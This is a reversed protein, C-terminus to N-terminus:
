VDGARPLLNSLFGRVFSIGVPQLLKGFLKLACKVRPILKGGLWRANGSDSRGDERQWLGVESTSRSCANQTYDVAEKRCNCSRLEKLLALGCALFM